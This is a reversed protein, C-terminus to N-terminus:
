LLYEALNIRYKNPDLTKIISRPHNGSADKETLDVVHGEVKTGKSDMIILVRPRDPFMSNCGFVLGLEKSDLLVLTGIPFVGIMNIFFKFIVPDLQSGAREMMISLAKDPAMPIRSYVRSSTMGDYQDALSVIKSYFDLEIPSSLRPYGSLDYNLHHEFAVIATRVSTADLGKLKLIARVGWFPHRKMIRWEDDTFNTPKNLIEAPVEIKGIDHFLAVLGVETLAKRNLGLRQGLAVSLISVNVSHHYTYEDYDKIATMGVLMEEEELIMDVMSEVVRKAKKISIKEGSQIKTIVGKTYSVANFYTKKVFRRIDYEGEDRIKKLPGVSLSHIDAIGESLTKFSETSFSADFFAKLFRQIDGPTLPSNIIISGLGRKRFERILFDFNLLYEMSYRVRTDNLYFFEGGLELTLTDGSNLIPNVISCLRDIATLIAVNGADHIQSSRIIVALQNIIDKPNAVSGSTEKNAM